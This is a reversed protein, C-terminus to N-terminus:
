ARNGARRRVAIPIRFGTTRSPVASKAQYSDAPLARSDTRRRHDDRVLRRDVLPVAAQFRLAAALRTDRSGPRRALVPILREQQRIAPPVNAHHGVM